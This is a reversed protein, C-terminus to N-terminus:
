YSNMQNSAKCKYNNFPDGCDGCDGCDKCYKIDDEPRSEVMNQDPIIEINLACYSEPSQQNDQHWLECNNKQGSYKPWKKALACRHKLSKM